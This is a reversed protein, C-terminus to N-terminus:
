VDRASSVASVARWQNLRNLVLEIDDEYIVGFTAKSAMCKALVERYETSYVETDPHTMYFRTFVNVLQEYRRSLLDVAQMKTMVFGVTEESLANM